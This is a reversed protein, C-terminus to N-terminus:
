EHKFEFKLKINNYNSDPSIISYLKDGNKSFIEMNLSDIIQTVKNEEIVNPACGLMFFPLFIILRYINSM